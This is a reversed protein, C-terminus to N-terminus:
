GRRFKSFLRPYRELAAALGPDLERPLKGIRYGTGFMCDCFELQFVLRDGSRVHKGKHLGRTDEAIITGRPATFEIFDRSDPFAAKVEEDTLRQYGKRLIPEPIGGTRQSGAVFCHPGNEPTVDTVYFFFKLWKLRDMDFHYFQAAEEDPQDSFATHWWFAVIDLIPRCGLYAQAVALLSPDCM